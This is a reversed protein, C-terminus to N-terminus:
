RTRLIKETVEGAPTRLRALYVGSPVQRGHTDAGDWAYAHNGAALTEAVFSRVLRGKVDYVALDSHGEGPLSFRFTTSAAFPAPAAHLTGPAFQLAPPAAPTDSTSGFTYVHVEYPDFGDSFTAGVVPRSRSEFVVQATTTGSLPTGSFMTTVPNPSTNATLLTYTGSAYKLKHEIAPHTSSVPAQWDDRILAGQLSALQKAVPAVGQWVAYPGGTYWLGWWIIGTAGNIIADYAMFRSEIATPGPTGFREGYSTAVELRQRPDPFPYTYDHVAVFDGLGDGNFDGGMTYKIDEFNYGLSWVIGWHEQNFRAGDSLAAFVWQSSDEDPDETYLLVLDDRGNGDLDQSTTHLLQSV